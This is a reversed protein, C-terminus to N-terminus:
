SIAVLMDNTVDVCLEASALGEAVAVIVDETIVFWFEVVSLIGIVVNNTM